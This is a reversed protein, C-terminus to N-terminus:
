IPHVLSLLIEERVATKTKEQSYVRTCIRFQFVFDGGTTSVCMRAWNLVLGYSVSKEFGTAATSSLSQTEFVVRELLSDLAHILNQTPNFFLNWPLPHVPPRANCWPTLSDNDTGFRYEMDYGPGVDDFFKWSPLLARWNAFANM